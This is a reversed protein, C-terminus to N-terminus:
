TRQKALATRADEAHGDVKFTAKNAEVLQWADDLAGSLLQITDPDFVAPHDKLYRLM